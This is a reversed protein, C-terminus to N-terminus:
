PSSKRYVIDFLLEMDSNNMCFLVLLNWSVGPLYRLYGFVDLYSIIIGETTLSALPGVSIRDLCTPWPTLTLSDLPLAAVGPLASLTPCSACLHWSWAGWFDRCCNKFNEELPEISVLSIYMYYIIYYLYCPEGGGIFFLLTITNFLYICWTYFLYFM